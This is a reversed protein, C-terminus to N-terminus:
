HEKGPKAKSLTKAGSASSKTYEALSGLFSIVIRAGSKM